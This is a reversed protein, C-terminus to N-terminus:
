KLDFYYLKEKDNLNEMFIAGFKEYYNYLTTKLYIRKFGRRKAEKLIADNLIKSYGKGRFEEKVFMTAYWPSLDLREDGDHEFISIFGVLTLNDLLILKCYNPNDLNNKIKAIKNKIKLEFEKKSLNEKGWENQTIIAVEEIYEPRDKINYIKLMKESIDGYLCGNNEKDYCTPCISLDTLISPKLHGDNELISYIAEKITNWFDKLNDFKLKNDVDEYKVWEFNERDCLPINKSTPGDDIAIYMYNEVNEGTPTTYKIIGIEKNILLHNARLTEEETERIACEETTEGKELHGKPFSYGNDEERYILGIQKTKLNLLITGAKKTAM